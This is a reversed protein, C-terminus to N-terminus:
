DAVSVGAAPARAIDIYVVHLRDTRERHPGPRRNPRTRPHRYLVPRAPPDTRERQERGHDPESHPTGRPPPPPTSTYTHGTPTTTHVATGAGGDPDPTARWHPAQKTQNCATCLGQGNSTTTPGGDAHPRVHDAHRIPAGCYPTRCTQDRYVLFRRANEPFLRATSEMAALTGTAPDTFLRRLCVAADPDEGRALGRALPAPIPGYGILHAPEDGDTLLTGPTLLLDLTIPAPATPTHGTLREVLTDAMIQGLTRSDGAAKLTDAHTKLAAYSSV